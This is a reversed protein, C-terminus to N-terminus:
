RRERIALSRRYLLDADDFRSQSKYLDALNSLSQAVDTHDPGLVKERIALSRQYLPEADAYSGQARYLL